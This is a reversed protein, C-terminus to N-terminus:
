LNVFFLFHMSKLDINKEVKTKNLRNIIEKNKTVKIKKVLKMDHFGVAGIEMGPTKKLNTWPTYDVSV